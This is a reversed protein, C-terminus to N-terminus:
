EVMRPQLLGFFLPLTLKAELQILSFRSYPPLSHNMGCYTKHLSPMKWGTPLYQEAKLTNLLSFSRQSTLTQKLLNVHSCLPCYIQVSCYNKESSSMKWGPPLCREAVTPQLLGFFHPLTLTLKLQLLSFHSCLPLSYNMSCYTKYLSPMTWGTALFKKAMTSQLLGFFHPLTLTLKLQLLDFRLCLPCYIQMSCYNKESSSMKWGTTLSKNAM